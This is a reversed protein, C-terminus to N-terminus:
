TCPGNLHNRTKRLKENAFNTSRFNPGNAVRDFASFFTSVKDFSLQILNSNSAFKQGIEM